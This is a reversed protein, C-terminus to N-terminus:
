AREADVEIRIPVQDDGVRVVVAEADDVASGMWSGFSDKVMFGLIHVAVTTAASGATNIPHEPPAFSGGGPPSGHSVAPLMQEHSPLCPMWCNVPSPVARSSVIRLRGTSM